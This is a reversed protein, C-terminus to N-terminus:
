CRLVLKFSLITKQKVLLFNGKETLLFCINRLILAEFNMLDDFSMCAYLMLSIQQRGFLTVPNESMSAPCKISKPTKVNEGKTGGHFLSFLLQRFSMLNQSTEPFGFVLLNQFNCSEIEHPVSFDALIGWVPALIIQDKQHKNM